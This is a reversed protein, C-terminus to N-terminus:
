ILYDRFFATLTNSSAKLFNITGSTNKSVPKSITDGTWLFTIGSLDSGM